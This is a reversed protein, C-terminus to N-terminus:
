TSPGEAAPNPNFFTQSVETRSFGNDVVVSVHHERVEMPTAGGNVASLTGAADAAGAYPLACMLGLGAAIPRCGQM